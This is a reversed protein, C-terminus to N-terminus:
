SGINWSGCAQESMEWLAKKAYLDREKATLKVRRPLGKAGPPEYFEGSQVDVGVCCHLLPMTGDEASQAFKM